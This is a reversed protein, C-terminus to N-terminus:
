AKLAAILMAEVAANIQANPAPDKDGTATRWKRIFIDVEHQTALRQGFIEDVVPALAPWMDVIGLRFMHAPDAELARALAPIRTLPVKSRGTKMMSFANARELGTETAIRHQPKRSKLEDVRKSVFRTLASNAFPPVPHDSPM